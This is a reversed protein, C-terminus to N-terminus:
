RHQPEQPGPPAPPFAQGNVTLKGDKFVLHSTLAAGDRKLVGQRELGAIQATMSDHNSNGELLKEALAVDMRVDATVDLHQILDAVGAPGSQAFDEPKLGPLVNVKATIRFEGEPMVFGLHSIEFVPERALIDGGNKGLIDMLNQRARSLDAGPAGANRSAQRIDDTLKELAPGYLHNMALQYGVQTATFPGVQLNAASIVGGSSIYDGSRSTTTAVAVNRMSWSRAPTTTHVQAHALALNFTGVNLTTYARRMSLDVHLDELEVQSKEDALSLGKLNFNGNFSALDRTASNTGTLGKSQFTGADQLQVDFAPSSLTSAYGGRLGVRTHISLVPKRGLPADLQTRLEPPLVPESDITAFAITRLQPLPGHHILSHLTFRLSQLTAGSPLARKAEALPGALGYTVDETSSYIGRHYQRDTITLYPTQQIAQLEREQLQGELMLGILWAAAPYALLLAVVVVLAVKTKTNM